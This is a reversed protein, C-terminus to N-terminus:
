LWSVHQLQTSYENLWQMNICAQGLTRHNGKAFTEDGKRIMALEAKTPKYTAQVSTITFIGPSANFQLKGGNKMRAQRKVSSPVILDAKPKLMLM